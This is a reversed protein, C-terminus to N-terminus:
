SRARLGAAAGRDLVWTAHRVLRAPCEAPNGTGELARTVANRKSEGAAMVVIAAADRIVPPTITLRARPPVGGFVPLVRRSHEQLAADGPFLSAIHGDLGPVLLLLDLSVPLSQEYEGAAADLDAPEAEMRHVQSPKVPIRDLLSEKALRYNSEPHDPPVAREDGFYFMVDGWAISVDPLAALHEYVPRITSGGTLGLSCAGRAQHAIRIAAGIQGAAAEAFGAPEVVIVRGRDM